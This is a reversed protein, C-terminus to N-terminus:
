LSPNGEEGLGRVVKRNEQRFELPVLFPVVVGGGGGLFSRFSCGFIDARLRSCDTTSLLQQQCTAEASERERAPDVRTSTTQAALPPQVSGPVGCESGLTKIKPIYQTKPPPTGFHFSPPALLSEPLKTLKRFFLPLFARLQALARSGQTKM